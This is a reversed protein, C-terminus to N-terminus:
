TYFIRVPGKAAKGYIPDETGQPGAPDTNSVKHISALWFIQINKARHIHNHQVSFVM